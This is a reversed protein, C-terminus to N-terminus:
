GACPKASRGWFASPSLPSGYSGRGKGNRPQLFRKSTAESTAMKSPATPHASLPPHIPPWWWARHPRGSSRAVWVVNKLPESLFSISSPSLGSSVSARALFISSSRLFFPPPLRFSSPRLVPRSPLRCARRSTREVDREAEALSGQRHRDSSANANRETPPRSRRLHPVVDLSLSVLWPLPVLRSSQHAQAQEESRNSYSKRFLPFSTQNKLFNKSM